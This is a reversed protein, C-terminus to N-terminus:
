VELTTLYASLKKVIPELACTKTQADCVLGLNFLLANRSYKKHEICVPCGILKKEMATRCQLLLSACYLTLLLFMRAVQTLLFLHLVNVYVTILKNQLEPKTIIYVQVTDFLERSIYDEPVQLLILDNSSIASQACHVHKYHKLITHVTCVQYTIKPGLTPHFESFFICEIRSTM